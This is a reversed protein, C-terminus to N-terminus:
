GQKKRIREPLQEYSKRIESKNKAWKGKVGFYDTPEKEIADLLIKRDRLDFQIWEKIREETKKEDQFMYLVTILNELLSRTLILADRGFGTKCLIQISQYTDRSKGLLYNLTARCMDGVNRAARKTRMRDALNLLEDNTRFYARYKRNLAKRWDIERVYLEPINEFEKMEEPM